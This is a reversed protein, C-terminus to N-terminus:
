YGMVRKRRWTLAGFGVLALALMAISPPVPVATVPGVGGGLNTNGFVTLHSVTKEDFDCLDGFLDNVYDALSNFTVIDDIGIGANDLKFYGTYKGAKVAFGVILDANFDTANEDISWNGSNGDNDLNLDIRNLLSDYSYTYGGSGGHKGYKKKKKTETVDVKDWIVIDDMGFLTEFANIETQQSANSVHLAGPIDSSDWWHGSSQYTFGKSDFEPGITTANAQGSLGLGVAFAAVFGLKMFTTKM